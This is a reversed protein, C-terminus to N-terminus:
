PPGAPEPPGSPEFVVVDLSDFEGVKFRMM